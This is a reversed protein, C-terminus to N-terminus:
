SGQIGSYAHVLGGSREQDRERKSRAIAAAFLLLNRRLLGGAGSRRALRSHSRHSLADRDEGDEVLAVPDDAVDCKMGALRRAPLINRHPQAGTFRRRRPLRLFQGAGKDLDVNLPRIAFPRACKGPPQVLFRRREIDNLM